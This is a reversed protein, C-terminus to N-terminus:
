GTGPAPGAGAACRGRQRGLGLAQRALLAHGVDRHADLVHVLEGVLGVRERDPRPGVRRTIRQFVSSSEGNLSALHPDHDRVLEPVM